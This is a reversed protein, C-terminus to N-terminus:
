RGLGKKVCVPCLKPETPPNNTAAFGVITACHFDAGRAKAADFAANHVQRAAREEMPTPKQDTTM